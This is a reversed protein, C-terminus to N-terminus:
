KKRRSILENVIAILILCVYVVTWIIWLNNTRAGGADIGDSQFIVGAIFGIIYAFATFVSVKKAKMWFAIGIVIIGCIFLAFPLQKMRHIDFLIYRILGFGACLIVLSVLHVIINKKNEM